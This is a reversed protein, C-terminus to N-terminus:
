LWRRTKKKYKLYSEGFWSEMWKEEPLIFKSQIAWVFFPIVILPSFSGLVIAIGVVVVVGGLYMPNRTYRFIGETVLVTAQVGPPLPTGARRFLRRSGVILVFGIFIFVLGAYRWPTRLWYGMPMIIGLAVMILIAALLYVPPLIRPIDKDPKM